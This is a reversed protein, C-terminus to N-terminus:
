KGRFATADIIEVALRSSITSDDIRTSIYLYNNAEAIDAYSYTNSLNKFPLNISDSIRPNGPNSIDIVFISRDGLVYAFNRKVIIRGFNNDFKIEALKQPNVPDSISSIQMGNIKSIYIYQGSIAIDTFAEISFLRPSYGPYTFYSKEKLSSPSSIDIVHIGDHACLILNNNDALMKIVSIQSNWTNVVVPQEISTFDLVQISDKFDSIYAYNEHFTIANGTITDVRSIERPSSPNSIDIMSLFKSGPIVLINNKIEPRSVFNNDPSLIYAIQKPKMPNQIDFILIGTKSSSNQTTILIFLYDRGNITGTIEHGIGTANTEQSIEMEAVIRARACGPISITLVVMLIVLVWLKRPL